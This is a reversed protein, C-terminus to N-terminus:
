HRNTSFGIRARACHALGLSAAAAEVRASAADADRASALMGRENDEGAIRALKAIKIEVGRLARDLQEAKERRDAPVQLARFQSRWTAVIPLLARAMESPGHQPGTGAQREVGVIERKASLCMRDAAVTYADRPISEEKVPELAIFAVIAAAVALLTAATIARAKRTTGLLQGM